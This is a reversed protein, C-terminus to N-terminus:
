LGILIKFKYNKPEIQLSEQFYDFMNILQNDIEDNANIHANPDWDYRGHCNM